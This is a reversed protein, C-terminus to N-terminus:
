FFVFYTFYALSFIEFLIAQFLCFVAQNELYTKFLCLYLSQFHENLYSWFSKLWRINQLFVHRKRFWNMCIINRRGSHVFLIFLKVELLLFVYKRIKFQNVIKLIINELYCRKKGLDCYSRFSGCTVEAWLYM